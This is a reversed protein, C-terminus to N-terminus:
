RKQNTGSTHAASTLSRLTLVRAASQEAAARDLQGNRLAAVLGNLVESGTDSTCLLLDEGAKAALVGRAAVGGFRALAGASLADTITVGTFGLRTAARQRGRALAGGPLAPDLAPYVAWSLMVLKVGAAIAAQFPLEDVSQLTRLTVNLTVPRLDTNEATAAAGLGPFHKVTAAVGAHQEATIFASVLTRRDGRRHRLLPPVPRHLRRADPGRGRGARPQREARRRAADEGRRHGGDRGARRTPARGIQGQSHTPSGPLRRVVGGEQDTMLLLPAHSGNAARLTRITAAFQSRSGINESFFIVGAAQGHRIRTLLSRPPTRGAYSYVIRQGALQTLTLARAEGPAAACVVAIALALLPAFRARLPKLEPLRVGTM